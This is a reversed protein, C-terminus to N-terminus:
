PNQQLTIDGSVTRVDLKGAGTGIIGKCIRTTSTLDPLMCITNGSTSSIQVTLNSGPLLGIQVPAHDTELHIVDQADVRGKFIIAGMITSSDIIGKLNELTFTGYNGLISMEGSSDSLSIDGRNSKLNANGSFNKITIKGSIATIELDGKYTDMNITADYSNIKLTQGFPIKLSLRPPAGRSLSFLGPNYNSTIHIESALQDIQFAPKESADTAASIELATGAGPSIEVDGSNIQVVIGKKGTLDITQDLVQNVPGANTMCAALLFCWVLSGILNFKKM